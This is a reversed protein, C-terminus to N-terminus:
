SQSAPRRLPLPDLRDAVGRLSGALVRRTPSPGRLREAAAQASLHRSREHALDLAAYADSTFM